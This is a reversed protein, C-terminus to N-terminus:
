EFCTLLPLAFEFNSFPTKHSITNLFSTWCFYPSAALLVNDLLSAPTRFIAPAKPYEASSRLEVGALTITKATLGAYLPVRGAV